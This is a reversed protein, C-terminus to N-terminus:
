KSIIKRKFKDTFVGDIRVAYSPAPISDGGHVDQDNWWGVRSKIYHKEKTIPNYVYFPRNTNARIHIFESAATSLPDAMNDRHEFSIGFTGLSILYARGIHTFVEASVLSEMWKMLIPFKLAVQTSQCLTPDARWGPGSDVLNYLTYQDHAGFAHKIFEVFAHEDQDQLELGTQKLISDNPLECFEEYAVFVPKVTDFIYSRNEDTIPNNLQAPVAMPKALAMSKLIDIQINDFTTLDILDELEFHTQGHVGIMGHNVAPM